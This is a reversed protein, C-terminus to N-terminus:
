KGQNRKRRPIFKNRLQTIKTKLSQWCQEVSKNQFEVEWDINLGMRIEDYNGKYYNYTTPAQNSKAPPRSNINFFLSCHDSSGLPASILLDDVMEESNTLVLDLINSQQGMRVRTPEQVHQYLYADQTCELFKMAPHQLNELCVKNTWDIQPHNFDGMLLLKEHKHEKLSRIQERLKEDNEADSNPSRYMCGIKLVEGQCKISAWVSEKAGRLEIDSKGPELEEKIYICVGRHSNADLINDFLTYGKINIESPQLPFRCNKPKVETIGLIHPDEESAIARLEDIKNILSDANAYYVKLSNSRGASEQVHVNNSNNINATKGQNEYAKSRTEECKSSQHLKKVKQKCSVPIQYKTYPQKNELVTDSANEGNESEEHMLITFKNSVETEWERSLDRQPHKVTGTRWANIRTRCDQNEQDTSGM